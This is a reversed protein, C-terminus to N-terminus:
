ALAQALLEVTQVRGPTADLPEREYSGAVPVLMVEDVDYREALRRLEPAAADPTGIIWRTRMDAVMQEGLGDLPTALAEKPDM